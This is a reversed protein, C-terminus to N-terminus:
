QSPSYPPLETTHMQQQATTTPSQKPAECALANRLWAWCVSNSGPHERCAHTFSCNRQCFDPNLPNQNQVQLNTNTTQNSVPVSEHAVTWSLSRLTPFPFSCDSGCTKRDLQRSPESRVEVSQESSECSIPSRDSACRAFRVASRRLIPSPSEASSQGSECGRCHEGSCHALRRSFTPLVCTHSQVAGCPCSM